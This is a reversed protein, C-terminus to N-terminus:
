VFMLWMGLFKRLGIWFWTNPYSVDTAGTQPLGMSSNGIKIPNGPGVVPAISNSNQAKGGVSRLNGVFGGVSNANDAFSAGTSGIRTDASFSKPNLSVIQGSSDVSYGAPAVLKGDAGVSFTGGADGTVPNIYSQTARSGYFPNLQLRRMIKIRFIPNNNSSYIERRCLLEFIDKIQFYFSIFFVFLVFFYFV